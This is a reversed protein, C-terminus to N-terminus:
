GCSGSPSPSTSHTAHLPRIGLQQVTSPRFFSVGGSRALPSSGGCPVLSEPTSAASWESTRKTAPSDKHVQMRRHVMDHTRDGRALVGEATGSRPWCQRSYEDRSESGASIESM